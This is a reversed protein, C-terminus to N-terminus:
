LGQGQWRRIQKGVRGCLYTPLNLKDARVTVLDVPGAGNTDRDYEGEMGKLGERLPTIFHLAVCSPVLEAPGPEDPPPPYGIQRPSLFRCGGVRHAQAAWYTQEVVHHIRDAGLRALLWEMFDLDVQAPDVLMIGSNVRNMMRLRQSGILHWYRIAYAITIDRTFVLPAGPDWLRHFGSFSRVFYVDTDCFVLPADALLPVDMFKLSLPYRERYLRCTPYKELAALVPGDAEARRIFRTGPQADAVRQCDEDTMSGDDHILLRFAPRHCRRLSALCRLAMPVHAHCLLSRIIPLNDVNM